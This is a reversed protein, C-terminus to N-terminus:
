RNTSVNSDYKEETAKVLNGKVRKVYKFLHNLTSIYYSWHRPKRFSSKQQYDQKKCEVTIQQKKAHRM